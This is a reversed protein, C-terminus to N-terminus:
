RRKKMSEIAQYSLYNLHSVQVSIVTHHVSKELFPKIKGTYDELSKCEYSRPLIATFSCRIKSTLDNDDVSFIEEVITLTITKRKIKKLTKSNGGNSLFTVIGSAYIM